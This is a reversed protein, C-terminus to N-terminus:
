EDLQNPSLSSADVVAESGAHVSYSDQEVNPIVTVYQTRTM